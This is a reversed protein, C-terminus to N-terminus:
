VMKNCFAQKLILLSRWTPLALQKAIGPKGLDVQLAAGQGM